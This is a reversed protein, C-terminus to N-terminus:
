ECGNKEPVLMTSIPLQESTTHTVFELDKGKEYPPTREQPRVQLPIAESARRKNFMVQPSITMSSKIPSKVQTAVYARTEDGELGHKVEPEQPGLFGHVTNPNISSYQRKTEVKKLYKIRNDMEQKKRLDIPPLFNQIVNNHWYNIQRDRIEKKANYAVNKIDLRTSGQFDRFRIKNFKQAFPEEAHRDSSQSM